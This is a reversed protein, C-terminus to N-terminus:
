RIVPLREDHHDTRGTAAEVWANPQQLDDPRPGPLRRDLIAATVTLADDDPGVELGAANALDLGHVTLELLRTALFDDFRIWASGLPLAIVSEPMANAIHGDATALATTLGAKLQHPSRKAAYAVAWDANGDAFAAVPDWYTVANLQRGGIEAAGQWRWLAETATWLHGILVGVSWGPLRTTWSLDSMGRVMRNIICAQSLFATRLLPLDLLLAPSESM